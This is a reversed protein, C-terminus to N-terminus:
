KKSQLLVSSKYAKGTDDDTLIYFYTGAPMLKGKYRGDWGDRGKYLLMGWRNYVEINFNQLFLDNVGDGNPTFVNPLNDIVLPEGILLTHTISCGWGDTVTLIYQGHELFYRDKYRFAPEDQWQYLYRPEEGCIYAPDTICNFIGGTVIPLIKGDQANQFTEDHTEFTVTLPNDPEIIDVPTVIRMCGASDSVEVSYSPRVDSGDVTLTGYLDNRVHSSDDLAEFGDNWRYLYEDNWGGITRLIATGTAESKCRVRGASDISATLAILPELVTFTQTITDCGYDMAVLEYDGAALHDITTANLINKYGNPGAWQINYPDNPAPFSRGDTLTISIAGNQDYKCIVNTIDSQMALKVPQVLTFTDLISCGATDRVSFYYTGWTLSDIDETTATFSGDEKKSWAFDYPPIPAIIDGKASTGNWGGTVALHIYGDSSYHCTIEGIDKALCLVAAPEDVFIQHTVSTRQSWVDTVTVTYLGAALHTLTDPTATYHNATFGNPGTWKYYYRGGSNHTEGGKAKITIAGQGDAKCILTRLLLTDIMIDDDVLVTYATRPMQVGGGNVARVLYAGVKVSVTDEPIDDAIADITVIHATDYAPKGNADTLPCEPLFTTTAQAVQIANNAYPTSSPSLLSFWDVDIARYSPNSLKIKYEIPTLGYVGPSLVDTGEKISDHLAIISARPNDDNKAINISVTDNVLAIGQTNLAPKTDSRANHLAAYFYESIEFVTENVIRIPVEARWWTPINPDVQTWANDPITFDLSGALPYADVGCISDTGLMALSDRAVSPDNSDGNILWFDWGHARDNNGTFAIDVKTSEDGLKEVAINLIGQTNENINPYMPLPLAKEFRFSNFQVPTMIDNNGPVQDGNYDYSNLPDVDPDEWLAPPLYTENEPANSYDPKQWDVLWNPIPWTSTDTTACGLSNFSEIFANNKFKMGKYSQNPTARYSLEVVATERGNLVGTSILNGIGRYLSDAYLTSPDTLPLINTNIKVSDIDIQYDYMDYLEDSLMVNSLYGSSGNYITYLTTVIYDSPNDAALAWSVEKALGIQATHIYVTDMHQTSLIEGLMDEAKCAFPTSGSIVYSTSPNAYTYEHLPYTGPDRLKIDIEYSIDLNKLYAQSYKWPTRWRIVTSDKTRDNVYASDVVADLQQRWTYIVNSSADLFRLKDEISDGPAGFIPDTPTSTVVDYRIPGLGLGYPDSMDLEFFRPLVLVVTDNMFEGVGIRYLHLRLTQRDQNKCFGYDPSPSYIDQELTYYRFGELYIQTGKLTDGDGGAPDACLRNAHLQLEVKASDAEFDTCTTAVLFRLYIKRDNKPTNYVGPITDKGTLNKLPIRITRTVSDPYTTGDFNLMQAEGAPKFAVTDQGWQYYGSEAIYRLGKPLIMDLLVDKLGITEISQLVIEVPFQAGLSVYNLGFYKPLLPNIDDPTKMKPDVPTRYLATVSGTIYSPYNIIKLTDTIGLWMDYTPTSMNATTDIPNDQYYNPTGDVTHTLPTTSSSDFFWPTVNVTLTDPCLMRNFRGVLSFYRAQMPSLVDTIRIWKSNFGAGGPQHAGLTWVTDYPSVLDVVYLPQFFNTTDSAPNDPDRCDVYLWCNLATEGATGAPNNVRITWQVTDNFADATKGAIYEVVFNAADNNLSYGNNLTKPALGEPSKYSIHNTVSTYGLPAKPTLRIYSYVNTAWGEDPIQDQHLAAYDGVPVESRVNTFWYPSADAVTLMSGNQFTGPTGDMPNVGLTFELSYADLDPSTRGKGRIGLGAMYQFPNCLVYGYPLTFRVSDPYYPQRLEYPFLVNNAANVNSFVLRHNDGVARKNRYENKGMKYTPIGGERRIGMGYFDLEFVNYADMQEAPMELGPANPYATPTNTSVDNVDVGEYPTSNRAIAFEQWWAGRRYATGSLGGRFSTLSHDERKGDYAYNWFKVSTTLAAGTGGAVVGPKAVWESEIVISDGHRFEKPQNNLDNEPPIVYVLGVYNATYAAGTVATQTQTCYDYYHDPNSVDIVDNIAMNPNGKHWVKIRTRAHQFNSSNIKQNRDSLVIYIRDWKQAHASWKENALPTAQPAYSYSNLRSQTILMITDNEYARDIRIKSKSRVKNWLGTTDGDGTHSPTGDIWGGEDLGNNDQDGKTVNKRYGWYRKINMGFENKCKVTTSTHVKWLKHTVAKHGDNSRTQLKVSYFVDHLYTKSGCIGKVKMKLETNVKLLNQPINFITIRWRKKVETIDPDYGAGSNSTEEWHHTSYNYTEVKFNVNGGTMFARGGWDIGPTGDPNSLGIDMLHLNTSDYQNSWYLDIILKATKVTDAKSALPTSGTYPASSFWEYQYWPFANAINSLEFSYEGDPQNGPEGVPVGNDADSMDISNTNRPSIAPIDMYAYLGHEGYYGTKAPEKCEDYYTGGGLGRRAFYNVATIVDKYGAEPITDPQAYRNLPTRKIWFHVIAETEDNPSSVGVDTPSNIWEGNLLETVGSPLSGAKLQTAVLAATNGINYANFGTAAGLDWIRGNVIVVVKVISEVPSNNFLGMTTGYARAGGSNVLKFSFHNTDNPTFTAADAPNSITYCVKPSVADEIYYNAGPIQVSQSSLVPKGAPRYLEVGATTTVAPTKCSWSATINETKLGCDLSITKMEAKKKATVTYTINFQEETDLFANYANEPEGNGIKQLLADTINITFKTPNVAPSPVVIGAWAPLAAGTADTIQEGAIYMNKLCKVYPQVFNLEVKFNNSSIKGLGQNAIKLTQEKEFDTEENTFLMISGKTVNLQLKGERVAYSYTWSNGAQPALGNAYLAQTTYLAGFRIRVLDTKIGTAATCTATRLFKFHVRQGVPLSEEAATGTTGVTVPKFTLKNGSVSELEFPRTFVGGKNNITINKVGTNYNNKALTSVNTQGAPPNPTVSPDPILLNENTGMGVFQIGAQLTVEVRAGMYLGEVVYFDIEVTDVTAGPLLATTKGSGTTGPGKHLEESLTKPTLPLNDNDLWQIQRRDDDRITYPLSARQATADAAPVTATVSFKENDEERDDQSLLLYVYKLTDTNAAFIINVGAATNPIFTAGTVPPTALATPLFDRDQTGGGLMALDSGEPLTGTAVIKIPLTIAKYSPSSLQVKVIVPTGPKGYDAGAAYTGTGEYYNSNGINDMLIVTPKIEDNIINVTVKNQKIIVGKDPDPVNTALGGLTLTFKEDLEYIRDDLIHISVSKTNDGPSNTFNIANSLSTTWADAFPTSANTALLPTWQTTTSASIAAFVATLNVAGKYGKRTINFTLTEKKNEQTSLSAPGAISTVVIHIPTASGGGGSGGPVMGNISEAELYDKEKNQASAYAIVGDVGADPYNDNVTVTYNVRIVYTDWPLIYGNPNTTLLSKANADHSANLALPVTAPHAAISDSTITGGTIRTISGYGKYVPMLVDQLFVNYLTDSSYNQVRYEMQVKVASGTPTYDVVRKALRIQQGYVATCSLSVFLFLITKAYIFKKM